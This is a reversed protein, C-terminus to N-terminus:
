WGVEEREKVHGELARVADLAADALRTAEADASLYKQAAELARTAAHLRLLAAPANAKKALEQLSKVLFGADAAAIRYVVSERAEDGPTVLMSWEDSFGSPELVAVDGARLVVEPWQETLYEPTTRAVVIEKEIKFVHVEPM